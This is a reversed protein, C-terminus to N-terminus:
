RERQYRIQAGVVTAEVVTDKVAQADEAFVDRDVAIFDALMGPALCGKLNEEYSARAVAHTYYYLAEPLGISEEPQWRNAPKEPESRCVAAHIGFFPNPDVVPGDSGFAMPTGAARLSNWGYAVMDRGEVFDNMPIEEPCHLPQMSATVGLRQFRLIDDRKIYQAHEVRQRLGFVQAITRNAEFSDLVDTVAQDGVAHVASAIGAAAAKHTWHDLEERSIVAVGHDHAGPWPESMHATHSGLAGDTFLKLPGISIWEDGSGTRIGRSIFDLIQEQRLVKHIRIDLEGRERIKQYAYLCDAGDIDHISTIGRKLLERQGHPLMDDIHGSVDSQMLGDRVPIAAAERLIGTLEGHEDRVYTGGNPNPVDRDLGLEELAKSNLWLTHWDMSGLAVPIDPSVSDLAKRDPVVPKDWIHVNWQGGFIWTISEDERAKAVYPKLVDLAEELSRCNRMDPEFLSRAYIASHIHADGLGPLVSRNEMDTHETGLPALDKLEQYDGVAVIRDHSTLIADPHPTDSAHWANQPTWGAAPNMSHIKANHFLGFM